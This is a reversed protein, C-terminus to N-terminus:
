AHIVFALITYFIITTVVFVASVLIFVNQKNSYGVRRAFTSYVYAAVGAGFFAAYLLNM